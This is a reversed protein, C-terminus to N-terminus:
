GLDKVLHAYVLRRETTPDTVAAKEVCQMGRREYFSILRPRDASVDAVFRAAGAARGEEELHDLVLESVAPMQGAQRRAEPIIAIRSLYYDTSGPRTLTQAALHIRQKLPEDHLLGARSLAFTAALRAKTLDTGSLAAVMGILEDEIFIARGHPPAFEGASAEFMTKQALAAVDSEGYVFDNYPQSALRELELFRPVSLPPIEDSSVLRAQTL